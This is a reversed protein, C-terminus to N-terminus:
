AAASAGLILAPDITRNVLALATDALGLTAEAAIACVVRGPSTTM